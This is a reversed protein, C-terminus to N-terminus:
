KVKRLGKVTYVICDFPSPTGADVGTVRWDYDSVLQSGYLDEDFLLPLICDYTYDPYVKNNIYTYHGNGDSSFMMGRTSYSGTYLYFVAVAVESGSGVRAPHIHLNPYKGTVRAYQYSRFNLKGERPLYNLRIPHDTWVGKMLYGYEGDELSYREFSVPIEADRLTKQATALKCELVWQHKEFDMDKYSEWGEPRVWPLIIGSDTSAGDYMNDANVPCIESISEGEYEFPAYFRVGDSTVSIHATTETGNADTITAYREMTHIEVKEDDTGFVPIWEQFFADMKEVGQLYATAPEKLPRLYYTNGTKSGILKVLDDSVDAIIFEFEGGYASYLGSSPTSFFHFYTNYTDFSLTAGNDTTTKYLSTIANTVDTALETQVDVSDSHFKLTYAYGGYTQDSSPFFDMVWGYEPKVLVDKLEQMRAELRKEPAQDFLDEQEFLCGTSCFAAAAIAFIASIFRKM